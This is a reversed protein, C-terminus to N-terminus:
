IKVDVADHVDGFLSTDRVERYCEHARNADAFPDPQEAVPEDQASLQALFATAGRSARRRAGRRSAASAQKRGPTAPASRGCPRRQSLEPYSPMSPLTTAM